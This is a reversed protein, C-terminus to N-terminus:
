NIKRLLERIEDKTVYGKRIGMRVVSLVFSHMYKEKNKQRWEKNRAIAIHKHKRMWELVKRKTYEKYKDGGIHYQVTSQSLGVIEGIAKYSMGSRRLKHMIKLLRDNIKTM